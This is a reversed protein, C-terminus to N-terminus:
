FSFRASIQIERPTYLFGSSNISTNTGFTPAQYTATGTLPSGSGGNSFLYATTNVSTVNQHNAINFVDARLELNYFETFAFNKAVRM